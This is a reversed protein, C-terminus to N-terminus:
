MIYYIWYYWRVCVSLWASISSAYLLFWLPQLHNVSWLLAEGSLGLRNLCASNGICFQVLLSVGFMMHTIFLPHSPLVTDCYFVPVASCSYLQHNYSDSELMARFSSRRQEETLLHLHTIVQAPQAARWAGAPEHLQTEPQPTHHGPQLVSVRAGGGPQLLVSGGHQGDSVGGACLCVCTCQPLFLLKLLESQASSDETQHTLM